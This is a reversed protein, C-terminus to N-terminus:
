VALARDANGYFDRTYSYERAVDIVAFSLISEMRDIYCANKRSQQSAFAPGLLANHDEDAAGVPIRAVGDASGSGYAGETM